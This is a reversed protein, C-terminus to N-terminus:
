GKPAFASPDIWGFRGALYGIVLALIIFVIATITLVGIFLLVKLAIDGISFSYLKSYAYVYLFFLLILSLMFLYPSVLITLLFMLCSILFSTGQIYTVIALHEGYNYPKGFVLFALLANFPLAVFSAINFYKLFGRQVTTAIEIQKKQFGEEQYIGGLNEAYFENQAKAAEISISIYQDEFANFLFISLTMGIAFFAIPNMYKKRAGQLYESFLKKPDKLMISLTRFYKNDWGLVNELFSSFLTSPTIRPLIVKNGCHICFNADDPVTHKCNPCEM